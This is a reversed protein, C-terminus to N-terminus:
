ISFHKLDEDNEMLDPAEDLWVERDSNWVDENWLEFKDGQGVLVVKKDLGAYERLPGSVMIRGQGDLSVESAHGLILRKMQRVSKRLNPLSLLKEETEVWRTMPYLLLCRDMHDLTVVMEGGHDGKIKDRYKTPIAMRGKADLNLNSIGRFM